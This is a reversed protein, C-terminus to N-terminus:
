TSPQLRSQVVSSNRRAGTSPLLFSHVAQFPLKSSSVFGLNPPQQRWCATVVRPYRCIAYHLHIHGSLVGLMGGSRKKGRRQHRSTPQQLGQGGGEDHPIKGDLVDHTAQRMRTEPCELVAWTLNSKKDTGPQVITRLRSTQQRTPQVAVPDPSAIALAVRRICNWDCLDNSASRSFDRWISRDARKAHCLALEWAGSSIM